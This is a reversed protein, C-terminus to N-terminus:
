CSKVMVKEMPILQIFFNIGQEFAQQLLYISLDTDKAGWGRTALTWLPFGIVSLDISNVSFDSYRM